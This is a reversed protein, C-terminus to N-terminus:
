LGWAFDFFPFKLQFDPMPVDPLFDPAVDLPVVPVCASSGDEAESDDCGPPQEDSATEDNCVPAPDPIETGPPLHRKGEKTKRHKNHHWHDEGQSGPEGPRGKDFDLTDGSPHRYRTGNEPMHSTDVTWDPPLQSPDAPLKMRANVDLWNVPDGDAWVFRNSGGLFGASDKATWRGLGALYDRAGFRELGTDQDYLGGAFGFPQFGPSTDGVVRGFEDYVLAEAVNGTTVDVVMRPSGLHDTIIRYTAGGKVMYDPVNVHTAYVFRSVVVNNGDLEAVPRLQGDYLFGQVLVGNVKKGIRRNQGDIVYNILAGGPLSVSLLNGLDDYTYTTVQGGETKTQLEGNPTYTYTAAGYQLLRDQSDYTGAETVGLRSVSQRNGNTDYVFHATNLGDTAVDTLRGSPDYAYGYSHMVGGSVEDKQYIRGLADRHYTFSLLSAGDYSAGYVLPEGFNTHTQGDVVNGLTGSSLLGTAAERTLTLAGASRLLGDDDYVFTASMGGNITESSLRLNNDYTRGVTGAITGAFAISIVLSGDYAYTLTGIGDAATIQHLRGTM